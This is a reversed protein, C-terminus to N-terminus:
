PPAYKKGEVAGVGPWPGVGSIGWLPGRLVKTTFFPSGDLSHIPYAGSRPPLCFAFFYAGLARRVAPGGFAVDAGGWGTIFM